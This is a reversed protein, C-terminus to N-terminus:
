SQMEGLSYVARIPVSESPGFNRGPHQKGLLTRGGRRESSM